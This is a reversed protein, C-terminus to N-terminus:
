YQKSSPVLVHDLSTLFWNCPTVQLVTHVIGRTVGGFRAVIVLHGPVM